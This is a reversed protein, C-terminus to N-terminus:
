EVCGKLRDLMTQDQIIEDQIEKVTSTRAVMEGTEEDVDLRTPIVDDAKAKSALLEDNIERVLANLDVKGDTRTSIDEARAEVLVDDAVPAQEEAIEGFLDEELQDAQQQVGSGGPDHSNKLPMSTKMRLREAKRQIMSLADLMALQYGTSIAQNLQGDSLKLSDELLTQIAAPKGQKEPQPQSRMALKAQRTQQPKSSRSQKRTM